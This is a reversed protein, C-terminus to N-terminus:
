KLGVLKSSLEWLKTEQAEDFAFPAYGREQPAADEKAQGVIECDELYKGGQGEIARSVAAWVSTAAGQAQSKFFKQFEPTMWGDIMEQPVHAQAGSWVFGPHLSIAHIGQPGFVRDIYNAMWTGAIKSQAYAIWTNYGKEFTIDDWQVPAMRHAGSSVVVVRSAFEPSAGKLLAHKLLNFLLFPSLYNVCFQSEQGEILERTQPWSIGANFVVVNLIDTKALIEEAGARVSAFSAQDLQIVDVTGTGNSSSLIGEKVKEGKAKDRATMFVHAGTAHLARVTELGLGSSGGTVLFVKSTLNNQLGEDSIIQLATPRADGPGSPTAHASVYPSPSTTSM